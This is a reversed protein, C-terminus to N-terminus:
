MGPFILVFKQLYIVTSQVKTTNIQKTEKHPPTNSPISLAKNQTNLAAGVNNKYGRAIRSLPGDDLVDLDNGMVPEQM